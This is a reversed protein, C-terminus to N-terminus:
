VLSIEFMKEDITYIMVDDRVCIFVGTNGFLTKFLDGFKRLQLVRLNDEGDYLAEAENVLTDVASIEDNTTPSAERYEVKNVVEDDLNTLSVNEDNEEDEDDIKENKNDVESENLMYPVQDTISSVEDYDSCSEITKDDEPKSDNGDDVGVPAITGDLSQRPDYGMHITLANFIERVDKQIQSRKLALEKEADTKKHKGKSEESKFYAIKDEHCLGMRLYNKMEEKGNFWAIKSPFVFGLVECLENRERNARRGKPAYDHLAKRWDGM